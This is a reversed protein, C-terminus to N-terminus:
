TLKKLYWNLKIMKRISNQLVFIVVLFFSLAIYALRLNRNKALPLNMRKIQDPSLVLYFFGFFPLNFTAFLLVIMSAFYSIWIGKRDNDLAAQVFFLTIWAITNQESIWTAVTLWLTYAILLSTLFLIYTEPNTMKKKEWPKLVLVMFLTYLAITFAWAFGIWRNHEMFFVVRLLIRPRYYYSLLILVHFPSLTGYNRNTQATLVGTIESQNWGFIFFPLYSGVLFFIVTLIGFQIGAKLSTRYRTITIVFAALLIAPYLKISISIALIIAAPIDKGRIFLDYSVLVLLLALMDPMAWFGTVLIGLPNLFLFTFFTREDMQITVSHKRIQQLIYYPLFLDTLVLPLKMLFAFVLGSQAFQNAFLYSILMWLGYVIPQGLHDYPSYPSKGSALLKGTVLWINMDYPHGTFPAFALRIATGVLAIIWHKKLFTIWEKLMRKVERSKDYAVSIGMEM